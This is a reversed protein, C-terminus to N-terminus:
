RREEGKHRCARVEGNYAQPQSNCSKGATGKSSCAPAVMPAQPHDVPTLRDMTAEKTSRSQDEAMPELHPDTSAPTGGQTSDWPGLAARLPHGVQQAVLTAEMSLKNHLTARCQVTHTGWAEVTYMRHRNSCARGSIDTPTAKRLPAAKLVVPLLVVPTAGLAEKNSSDQDTAQLTHDLIAEEPHVRDGQIVVTCPPYAVRHALVM